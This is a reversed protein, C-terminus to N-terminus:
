VINEFISVFLVFKFEFDVVFNIVEVVLSDFWIRYIIKDYGVGNVLYYWM